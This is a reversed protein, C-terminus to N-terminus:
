EAGRSSYARTPQYLARETPWGARIRSSLCGETLGVERAWDAACKTQEGFTIFATVRRNQQQAKRTAWQCNWPAYPGDNDHRELTMGAPRPGMDELFASFSDLWRDCMSIGRGGYDKWKPHPPHTCRQKAQNWTAYESSAKGDSTHGHRKPSCKRCGKTGQRLDDGSVAHELGCECRCLWMAKGCKSGDRNLVTLKGFVQGTHDIAKRM